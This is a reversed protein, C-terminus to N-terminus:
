RGEFYFSEFDIYLTQRHATDCLGFHYGKHTTARQLDEYKKHM